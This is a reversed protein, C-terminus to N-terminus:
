KKILKREWSGEPTIIRVTAVNQEYHASPTGDVNLSLGIQPILFKGTNSMLSTKLKDTWDPTIDKLGVYSMFILPKNQIHQVNRYNMFATKDQGAGNIIKGQPELLAGQNLRLKITQAATQTVLLNATILVILFMLSYLKM